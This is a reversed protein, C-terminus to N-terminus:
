QLSISLQVLVSQQAYDIIIPTYMIFLQYSLQIIYLIWTMLAISFKYILYKLNNSFSYFISIYLIYM